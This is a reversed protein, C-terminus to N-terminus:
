CAGPPETAGFLTVVNHSQQELDRAVDTQEARSRENPTWSSFDCHFSKEMGTAKANCGSQMHCCM